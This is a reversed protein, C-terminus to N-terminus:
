FTIENEKVVNRLLVNFVALQLRIWDFSVMFNKGCISFSKDNLLIISYYEWQENEIITIEVIQQGPPIVALSSNSDKNQGSLCMM